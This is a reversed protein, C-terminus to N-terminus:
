NPTKKTLLIKEQFCVIFTIVKTLVRIISNQVPVFEKNRHANYCQIPDSQSFLHILIYKIM